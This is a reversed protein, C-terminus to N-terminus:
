SINYSSSIEINTINLKEMRHQISKIARQKLILKYDEDPIPNYEIQKVIMNWIIIALKRATATIAAARGKKYAIRKFFHMLNGEKKRDITNAANRLALSLRNSGKPTRSSIVKGGSVRNNPALRLFSSFQKATNFKYIGTGIETILTLVTGVSVGEIAFLDVGYLKYSLETLNFKTQNKGKTQKKTLEIDEVSNNSEKTFELLLQELQNDCKKIKDQLIEYIELCDKLEYLYEESWQGQLADTIEKKSKKVRRDALKSLSAGDRVGLEVIANIIAMGSKGTIDSLVVDLRLNMLRLAKQMKNVMKSSEEILSSRHRHIIRLRNTQEDPLFCGRLLGLSHLKQIWQADKVDTKARLNKTQHGSVLIVEFGSEQLKFFLTQWYNGTSEMAVTTIKNEKLYSVIKKYDSSYIGFEKIQNEKQGVAVFHSKSGIDIGASNPHIINMMEKKKKM